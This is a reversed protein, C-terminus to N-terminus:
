CRQISNSQPVMFSPIGLQPTLAGREGPFHPTKSGVLGHLHISWAMSTSPGLWPPPHVLGHLHIASSKGQIKETIKLTGAMWKWSHLSIGGWPAGLLFLSVLLIRPWVFFYWLSCRFCFCFFCGTRTPILHLITFDLITISNIHNYDDKNYLTLNFFRRCWGVELFFIAQFHTSCRQFFALIGVFNWLNQSVMWFLFLFWEGGFSFFVELIVLPHNWGMQFITLIPIKGM